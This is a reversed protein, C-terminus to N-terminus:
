REILVIDSNDEERDFIIARGDPSVDFDGALFNPPFDTLQRERGSALDVLWFNKRDIEGRLVVVANTRPLFALRRAGRSLMVNPQAGVQGDASVQRLPFSTGVDAGSYVISAGDPSWAPDNAFESVLPVLTQGDASIKVLSPVGNITAAVAISRSDPSWTPAGRPEISDRLVHVGSGDSNMMYLRTRGREVASFAIRFGNPAIAPGGVVRMGAKTWLEKSVGHDLRFIGEGDPVSAIYVLYEVALRPARAANTPLPMRIVAASGAPPDTIAVRSFTRKPNSVTAVLRHGDASASLSTFRETGFSIRRTNRTDVDLAYIWPGAGQPDTALYLLTRRNLFVPYTVRSNHSTMREPAGGASHIRWIDLSTRVAGHIFYIFKDDPSWVQFHSHLGSPGTFIEKEARGSPDNVFMPDGPGPTHYVIRKGDSSWAIEAIGPRYFVKPEGGRVPVAWVSIEPPKSPIARRLWFTVLTGDPSFGVNRVDPNVLGPLRGNTLNHFEGTGVRTVWVDETGDRDALFAALKGDRSIAASHEAGEFDTLAIFRATALPNESISSRSHLLRVLAIAAVIVIIFAAAIWMFPRWPPHKVSPETVATQPRRSRSWADLEEPYAYVSGLKDHVHRHVPMGERKEWRQVTSVDRKLYSAIDKWSDLRNSAADDPHDSM